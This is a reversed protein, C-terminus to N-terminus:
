EDYIYDYEIIGKGSKGFIQLLTIHLYRYIVFFFGDKEIRRSATQAIPRRLLHYRPAIKAARLIYDQDEFPIIDRFGGITNHISRKVFIIGGYGHPFFRQVFFLTWNSINYIIKLYQRSTNFQIFTSGIQIDKTVIAHHIIKLCSTPLVMDADLFLIYKGKAVAAGRNRGVDATGGDVVRCGYSKAIERTRDTSRADSVIIEFNRFCQRKISTLLIPLYKEENRTIIVISFFM